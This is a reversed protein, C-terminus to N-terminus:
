QTAGLLRVVEAAEIRDDLAADAVDPAFGAIRKRLREGLDEDELRPEYQLPLIPLLATVVDAHSNFGSRAIKRTRDLNEEIQRIERAEVESCDCECLFVAYVNWAKESARRLSLSFRSLLSSETAQWQDLLSRPKQFTVAFGIIASDEFCVVRLSGVPALWTRYKADELVIHLTSLLDM